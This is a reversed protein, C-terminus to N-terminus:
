HLPLTAWMLILPIVIISPLLHSFESSLNLHQWFGSYDIRWNPLPLTIRRNNPNFPNMGIVARSAKGSYAAFFAPILIDQSNKDYKVEGGSNKLYNQYIDERYKLMNNFVEYQYNSITDNETIVKQVKMTKFATRFGWFSMGYNGSRVPSQSSYVGNADPLYFEQYNDGRSMNGSIQIRLDKAPELTTRYSFKKQKTQTFPQTQAMTKSLWGKSAAKRQFNYDQGGLVFDLRPCKNDLPRFWIIKFCASFRTFYTTEQISSIM